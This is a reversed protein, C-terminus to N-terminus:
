QLRAQRLDFLLGVGVKQHSDFSLLFLALPQSQLDVVPDGLRQGGHKLLKLGQLGQRARRGLHALDGYSARHQAPLGDAFGAVDHVVEMRRYQFLPPQDGKQFLLQVAKFLIRAATDPVRQRGCCPWRPIHLDNEVTYEVLRQDVDSPVGMGVFDGYGQIGTAATHPELNLVVSGAEINGLGQRLLSHAAEDTHVTPRLQRTSATAQLALRAPAGSHVNQNWARM